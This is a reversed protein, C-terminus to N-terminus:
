QIGAALGFYSRNDSVYVLRAHMAYTAPPALCACTVRASAPIFATESHLHSLVQVITCYSRVPEYYDINEVRKRVPTSSKNDYQM